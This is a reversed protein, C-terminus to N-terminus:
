ESNSETKDEENKSSTTKTSTKSTSSTDKEVVVGEDVRIANKTTTYKMGRRLFVSSGDEFRVTKQEKTKNKYTAM